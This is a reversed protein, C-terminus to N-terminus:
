RSHIASAFCSAVRACACRWRRDFPQAFALPPVPLILSSDLAVDQAGASARRRRAKLAFGCKEYFERADPNAIVTLALGAVGRRM